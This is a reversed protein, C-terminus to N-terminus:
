FKGFINELPIKIKELFELSKIYDNIQKKNFTIYGRGIDNTQYDVIAVNNNFLGFGDKIIDLIQPNNKALWKRDVAYNIKATKRAFEMFIKEKKFTEVKDFDFIFIRLFDLGKNMTEINYERFRKEQPDDIWENPMMVSISRIKTTSNSTYFRELWKYFTGTQILETKSQEDVQLYGGDSVLTTGTTYRHATLMIFIDEAIEDPLGLRKMPITEIAKKFASDFGMNGIWGSQVSNIRVGYMESYVNSMSSILNQKAAQCAAYASAGFSGRQAEVSSLLVISSSVNMNHVLERVLINPAFVNIRFSKEFETYDFNTNDELNFYLHTIALGFIPEKISKCVTILDKQNEFDVGKLILNPHSILKDLYNKDYLGIVKYNKKLLLSVLCRGIDNQIGAVVVTNITKNHLTRKDVPKRANIPIKWIKGCKTAGEIQNNICLARVRRESIGWATAIQNITLFKEM